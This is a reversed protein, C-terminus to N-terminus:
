IRTLVDSQLYFPTPLLPGNCFLSFTKYNGGDGYAEAKNFSASNSSRGCGAQLALMVICVVIILRKGCSM